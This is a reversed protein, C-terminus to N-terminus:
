KTSGLMTKPHPSVPSWPVLNRNGHDLNLALCASHAWTKSTTSEKALVGEHLLCLRNHKKTVKSPSHGSRRWLKSLSDVSTGKFSSGLINLIHLLTSVVLVCLMKIHDPKKHSLEILTIFINEPVDHVIYSACVQYESFLILHM